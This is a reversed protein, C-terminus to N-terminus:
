RALFNCLFDISLCNSVESRVVSRELLQVPFLQEYKWRPDAEFDQWFEGLRKRFSHKELVPHSSNGHNNNRFKNM